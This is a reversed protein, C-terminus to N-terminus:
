DSVTIFLYKSYLRDIDKKINNSKYSNVMPQTQRLNIKLLALNCTYPIEINDRHAEAITIWATNFAL